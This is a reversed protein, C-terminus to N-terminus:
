CIKDQEAGAPLERQISHLGHLPEASSQVNSDFLCVGTYPLCIGPQSSMSNNRANTCPPYGLVTIHFPRSEECFSGPFASVLCSPLATSGKTYLHQIATESVYPLLSCTQRQLRPSHTERATQETEPIQIGWSCQSEKTM